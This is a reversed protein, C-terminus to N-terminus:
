PVFVRSRYDCNAIQNMELSNPLRDEVKRDLNYNRRLARRCKQNKLARAASDADTMCGSNLLYRHPYIMTLWASNM